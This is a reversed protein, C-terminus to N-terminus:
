QNCILKLMIDINENSTILSENINDMTSNLLGLFYFWEAVVENLYKVENM